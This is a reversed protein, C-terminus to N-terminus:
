IQLFELKHFDVVIADRPFFSMYVQFALLFM